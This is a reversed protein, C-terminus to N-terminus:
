VSVMEVTAQGGKADILRSEQRLCTDDGILEVVIQPCRFAQSDADFRQPLVVAGRNDIADGLEFDFHRIPWRDKPSGVLWEVVSFQRASVVDGIVADQVRGLQKLNCSHVIGMDKNPAEAVIVQPKSKACEGVEDEDVLEYGFNVGISRMRKPFRDM